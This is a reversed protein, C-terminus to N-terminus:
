NQKSWLLLLAAQLAKQGDKKDKETCSRWYTMQMKETETLDAQLFIKDLYADYKEAEIYEKAIWERYVLTFIQHIITIVNINDNCKSAAEEPKIEQALLLGRLFKSKPEVVLSFKRSLEAGLKLLDGKRGEKLELEVELIPARKGAGLVFGNDLAIEILSDEYKVTVAERQFVTEVLIQLSDANLENFVNKDISTAAFVSLDPTGDAVEVNWESRCHLGGDASGNGKITAMWRENEKRVRYAIKERRLSRDATDFYRAALDFKEVTILNDMRKIWGCIEEWEEPLAVQLKLEIEKEASEVM